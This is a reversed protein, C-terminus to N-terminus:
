LYVNAVPVVIDFDPKFSLYVNSMLVVFLKAVAHKHKPCRSYVVGDVSILRFINKNVKGKYDKNCDALRSIKRSSAALVEVLGGVPPNLVVM